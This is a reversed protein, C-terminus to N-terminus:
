IELYTSLIKDIIQLSSREFFFVVSSYEIPRIPVHAPLARVSLCAAGGEITTEVGELWLQM